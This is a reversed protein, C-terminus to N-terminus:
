DIEGLAHALALPLPLALAARRGAASMKRGTKAVIRVLEDETRTSSFPAFYWRMFVLCAVDELAQAEADAKLREKRVLAGVREREAEDWGCGAMIEGLRQAHYAAADRRWQLYGARDRPYDDRPRKWREIHQGRVAIRLADSPADAFEALVQSMRRGYLWAAPVIAGDHPERAPDEANAEDIRDLVTQLPTADNTGNQAM